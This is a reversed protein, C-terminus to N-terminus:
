GEFFIRAKAPFTIRKIEISPIADPKEEFAAVGARRDM